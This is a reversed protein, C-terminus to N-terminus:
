TGCASTPTMACFRYRQCFLGHRSPAIRTPRGTERKAVSASPRLITLPPRSPHTIGHALRRRDRPRCVHQCPPARQAVRALQPALRQARLRPKDISHGVQEREKAAAHGPRHLRKRCSHASAHRSTIGDHTPASMRSIPQITRDLPQAFADVQQGLRAHDALGLHEVRQEKRAVAQVRVQKLRAGGVAAVIDGIKQSQQFFLIDGAAADDETLVSLAEEIRSVYNKWAPGFVEMSKNVSLSLHLDGIAYLAM